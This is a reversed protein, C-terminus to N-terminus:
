YKVEDLTIVNEHSYVEKWMKEETYTSSLKKGNVCFEGGWVCFWSWLTGREKAGDIDFLCGNESLTVIKHSGPYAAADLFRGSQPDYQREGPYIDEGIIDVYEDGPYWDASQANYVWILNDLGHHETMREYMLKWLAKYADAGDAGWWFWGGSAEHLPRFLVPIDHEKLIKLQEAARDIDDLLLKYGESEPDAMIESLKLGTVHDTYFAGWWNPHGDKDNGQKIYKDPACWHWCITVIGGAKDFAIAQEVTKSKSGRSVRSGSYDMLDLGMIAPSKGTAERIARFEASEMGECQQGSLVNKGYNKCLYKMLRKTRSSANKNSLTPSVKYLSATDVAAPAVDLCDLRIWGWSPTVAVKHEGKTLYTGRMRSSSIKESESRFQGINNGDVSVDNYKESGMGSSVFTLDWFGSSKVSITFTCSGTGEMRVYGGGSWGSETVASMGSLAADEAEYRVTDTAASVSGIYTGACNGFLAAMGAACLIWSIKKYRDM